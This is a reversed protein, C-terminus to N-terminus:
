SGFAAEREPPDTDELETLETLKAAEVNAFYTKSVPIKVENELVVYPKAVNPVWGRVADRHVWHSRHVTIGITEDLEAVADSFRMRTRHTKTCTQVDVFHGNASIHIIRTGQPIDLRQALRSQPPLSAPESLPLQVAGSESIASSFQPMKNRVLLVGLMIAVVSVWLSFLGPRITEPRELWYILLLDVVLTIAISGIPFFVCNLFAEGRHLVFARCLEYVVFAVAIACALLVTWALLASFYSNNQYTGFPGSFAALASFVAWIGLTHRDLTSSIANKM